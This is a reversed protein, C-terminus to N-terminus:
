DKFSEQMRRLKHKVAAVSRVPLNNDLCSKAYRRYIAINSKESSESATHLIDLERSSWPRRFNAPLNRIEVREVNSVEAVTSIDEVAAPIDDERPESLVPQQPQMRRGQAPPKPKPIKFPIREHLRRVRFKNIGSLTYHSLIELLRLQPQSLALDRELYGMKNYDVYIGNQFLAICTVFLCINLTAERDLNRDQLRSLVPLMWPMSTERFVKLHSAFTLKRTELSVLVDATLAASKAPLSEEGGPQIVQWVSKKDWTARQHNSADRVKIAPFYSISLEELGARLVSELGRGSQALMTLARGFTFPFEFRTKISLEDVLQAQTISGTCMKGAPLDEPSGTYAHLPVHQSDHLDQLLIVLLNRGTVANCAQLSDSFNFLRRIRRQQTDAATWHHLPPPSDPLAAANAPGIGLIGRSTTLSRNDNTTGPGLNISLLNDSPMFPRGWFLRELSLELQFAKWSNMFGGIFQYTNRLETLEDLLGKGVSQFMGTFSHTDDSCEYFPIFVPHRECMRKLAGADFLEKPDILHRLLQNSHLRSVVELRCSIVKNLKTINDSMTNMYKTARASMATNTRHHLLKCCAILGSVPHPHLNEVRCHPTDTYLQIFTIQSPYRAVRRLEGSVDIRRRDLNSQFNVADYLSLASYLTGRTNVLEQVGQRSWMLHVNYASADISVAHHITINSIFSVDFVEQLCLPETQKQGFKSAMTMLYTHAPTPTSTLARQLLDLIFAQDQPLVNFSAFDHLPNKQVSPRNIDQRSSNSMLESFSEKVNQFYNIVEDTDVYRTSQLTPVLCLSVRWGSTYCIHMGSAKQLSKIGNSNYATIDVHKKLLHYMPQINGRNINFLLYNVPSSIGLLSQLEVVVGDIDYKHELFVSQELLTANTSLTNLYVDEATLFDKISARGEIEQVLHDTNEKATEILGDREM